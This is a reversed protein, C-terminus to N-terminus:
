INLQIAGACVEKGGEDHHPNTLTCAQCHSLPSRSPPVSPRTSSNESSMKLCSRWRRMEQGTEAQFDPRCPLTLLIADSDLPM